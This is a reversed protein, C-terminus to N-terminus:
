AAAHHGDAFLTDVDIAIRGSKTGPETVGLIWAEENEVACREADTLDDAGAFLVGLREVDDLAKLHGVMAQVQLADKVAGRTSRPTVLSPYIEALVVDCDRLAAKTLTKLGTEFPWIRAGFRKDHRLAKVVPLGMLVQSGVSGTYALKWVPQPGTIYREGIRREALRGRGYADPRKTTLTAGAQGAPCGWFPGPRGLRRNLGAGVDFRNNVNDEGDQILRDVEDWTARWAAGKLGLARAFGKPYGFPFDFGALVKQGAEQRGVFLEAIRDRAAARTAPNELALLCLRGTSRAALCIWISDKGTRPVAAASWDVMMYADFLAM